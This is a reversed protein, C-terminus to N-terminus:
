TEAKSKGSFARCNGSSVGNGSISASKTLRVYTDPWVRVCRVVLTITVTALVAIVSAGGAVISITFDLIAAKQLHPVNLHCRWCEGKWSPCGDGKWNCKPHPWPVIKNPWNMEQDYFYHLAQFSDMFMRTHREHAPPMVWAVGDDSINLWFQAAPYLGLKPTKNPPMATLLTINGMPVGFSDVFIDLGTVGLSSALSISDQICVPIDFHGYQKHNERRITPGDCRRQTSQYRQESDNRLHRHRFDDRCRIVSRDRFLCIRRSIALLSLNTM